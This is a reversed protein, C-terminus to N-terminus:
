LSSRHNNRTDLRNLQLQKSIINIVIHQMSISFFECAFLNHPTPEILFCFCFECSQSDDFLHEFLDAIQRGITKWTTKGNIIYNKFLEIFSHFRNESDTAYIVITKSNSQPKNLEVHELWDFM